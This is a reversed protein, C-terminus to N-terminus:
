VVINIIRGPVIIIKKIEKNEIASKVKEDELAIKELMEKELDAQVEIKSRMKGNVQIVITQMVAKLADRNVKPWKADCIWSEYGLKKWLYHTIHPAIPSLLRLLINFGEALLVNFFDLEKELVPTEALKYLLNLMKMCASIVTNLQSREFDYRAQQLIQHLERRTQSLNGSANEWELLSARQTKLLMNGHKLFKDAYQFVFSWLRKLFRHAGELGADSWEMSQEPPAAFLIFVRVADAGYKEIMLKPDVTNGKSKSMKVGDKLVFGQNLLRLFPEDCNLFGEDRLLKHFFRAYLLHLVAHEIGGVYQDVPTWYKARDDLMAQDQNYSAFRAYYWSSEVFTDLTDTERKAPKLCSPCTTEYFAPMTKLPSAVGQFSVEEPLVVPLDEEPVPLVGCADCYIMPIPTGWYRQRSVGWDRLHYHTSVVGKKEKELFVIIKKRAELSSLGNFQASHILTGVGTYAKKTLDCATADEPAIVQKLPLNYKKAFEYDRQDHAPVAMVAGLGYEMIVFNAIWVPLAAKTVPHIVQLGTDIGKKELTAIAEEAVPIKKCEEVFKLIDARQKLLTEVIPHEPAIALYTVGWLTDPLTTYIKLKEDSHNAVGFIIEVGQSKGIWNRQITKVRESWGELSDLDRLLEEVYDTIKLFWQTIKRREILAGSRWGRGDEVQENALVTQEIPDWNVLAEKQYVLGKKYLQIFFWQEWGYYDPDCTAIERKWDYALGLSKLQNRMVEINKRTWVAPAIGHQIAANEAPLGFADWGIPQLVNKGLMRQYRAIADAIAYNRVHGMHLHGSPYPFMSLCYFKEKSLEEMGSFLEKEEWCKQIKVEIISPDYQEEIM